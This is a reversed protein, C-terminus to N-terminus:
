SNPDGDTDYSTVEGPSYLQIPKYGLELLVASYWVLAALIRIASYFAVWSPTDSYLVDRPQRIRYLATKPARLAHETTGHQRLAHRRSPLSPELGYLVGRSTKQPQWALLRMPLHQIHGVALPADDLCFPM